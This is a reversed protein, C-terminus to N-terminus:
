LLKYSINNGDTKIKIWYISSTIINNLNLICICNRVLNEVWFFLDQYKESFRFVSNEKTKTAWFMCISLTNVFQYCIM